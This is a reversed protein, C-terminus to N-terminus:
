NAEIRDGGIRAPVIAPMALDAQERRYTRVALTVHVFREAFLQLPLASNEAHILRHVRNGIARATRTSRSISKARILGSSGRVQGCARGMAKCVEPSGGAAGSGM